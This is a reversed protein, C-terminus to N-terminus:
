IESIIKEVRDSYTDLGTVKKCYETLPVIDEREISELNFKRNLAMLQKLGVSLRNIYSFLGVAGLSIEKYNSYKQKLLHRDAFILDLDNGFRKYEKPIENNLVCEGIQKGVLAATMAARGIAVLNIFPAGLALGKFVQDEMVFGGAIAIQPVLCGKNKYARIIKYVISELELTPIGWENMMKTPSNGSGGGAGDFTILDIKNDIAIKIMRNLDKPDFPGTKFCIRKAGMERLRAIRTKLEDEEWMPLKGIKEFVPGMGNKYKEVVEKDLPNPYVIYGRKKFKIADELTKVPGMGQIGKAAQGFKLEVSEVGLENIAYDLVGLEEDDYNAQLVIDGYGDQYKRYSLIMEEILPAKKVKGNELVLNKDKSIVDEGIVVAIGSLAAGGYYDEWNLKAIAPLIIPAKLKVKNELGFETEINVLPFTAENADKICGKAGFVSGNINLSSFDLPYKKESAFQNQDTRYPYIAEAGRVASLGIECYGICNASCLACMGSLDSINNPTRMKTNTISSGLTPSYSM